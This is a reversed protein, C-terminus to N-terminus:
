EALHVNIFVHTLPQEIRLSRKVGLKVYVVGGELLLSSMFHSAFQVMKLVM